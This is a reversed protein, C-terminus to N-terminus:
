SSCWILYKTVNGERSSLKTLQTRMTEKRRVGMLGLYAAAWTWPAAELDLM